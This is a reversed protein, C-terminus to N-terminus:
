QEGLETGMVQDRAGPINIGTIFKIEVHPNAAIRPPTPGTASASSEFSGRRLMKLM